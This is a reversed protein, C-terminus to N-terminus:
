CGRCCSRHPSAVCRHRHLVDVTGEPRAADDSPSSEHEDSDANTEAAVDCCSM